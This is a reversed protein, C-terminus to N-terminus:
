GPPTRVFDLSTLGERVAYKTLEAISFLQLKDMIQRRHTEVTKVSLFLKSAVDKATRGEALLQLVERERASLKGRGPADARTALTRLAVGAVQPSVYVDGSAVRRIATVLEAFAASKLVYGVAGARLMDTVMATEGHASLAIVKVRHDGATIQRTADIGNLNPMSIDMVVVNPRLEQTLRVAARGDDAEAVVKLDPQTHILSRLGERLIRQDETLLIRIPM